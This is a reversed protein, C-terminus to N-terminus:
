RSLVALTLVAASSHLPNGLQWLLKTTRVGQKFRSMDRIYAVLSLYDVNLIRLFLSMQYPSLLQSDPEKRSFTGLLQAASCYAAMAMIASVLAFSFTSSWSPVFVIRTAPYDVYYYFPSTSNVIPPGPCIDANPCTMNGTLNAFVLALMVISFSTMPVVVLLCGQLIKKTHLELGLSSRPRHGLRRYWTRQEKKESLESNLSTM